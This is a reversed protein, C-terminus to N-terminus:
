LFWGHGYVSVLSDPEYDCCEFDQQAAAEAEYIAQADEASLEHMCIREQLELKLQDIADYAPSEEDPENIFREETLPYDAETLSRGTLVFNDIEMRRM